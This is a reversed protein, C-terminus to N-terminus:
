GQDRGLGHAALVKESAAVDIASLRPAPEQPQTAALFRRMAPVSTVRKGRALKITELKVGAKGNLGWRLGTAICVRDGTVDHYADVIDLTGEDLLRLRPDTQSHASRPATATSSAM